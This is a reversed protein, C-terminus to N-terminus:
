HAAGAVTPVTEPPVSQMALTCYGQQQMTVLRGAEEPNFLESELTIVMRGQETMVKKIKCHIDDISLDVYEESAKPANKVHVAEMRHSEGKSKTSIFM